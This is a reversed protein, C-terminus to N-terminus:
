IKWYIFYQLYPLPPKGTHGADGQRPHRRWDADHRGRRIRWAPDIVAAKRNSIAHGIHLGTRVM